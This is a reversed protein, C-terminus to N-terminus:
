TRSLSAQLWDLYGASGSEVGLALFEPIEYGHLAHLREELAPMQGPLTKLLLLTERSTEIKGQWRYISEIGPVVTACAVLQEEVLTRGLSAAQEPSAVTTLVIRAQPTSQPM